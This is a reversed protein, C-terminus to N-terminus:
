GNLNPFHHIIVAGLTCSGWTRWLTSCSDPRCWRGTGARRSSVIVPLMGLITLKKRNAAYLCVGTPILDEQRVKMSRLVDTGSCCVSAGTDGVASQNAADEQHEEGPAQTGSLEHYQEKDVAVRVQLAKMRRDPWTSVYKGAKEDYRLHRLIRGRVPKLQELCERPLQCVVESDQLGDEHEFLETPVHGGRGVSIELLEEVGANTEAKYKGSKDAPPNRPKFLHCQKSLHGMKSCKQCQENFASCKEKRIRFEHGNDGHDQEGCWKCRKLKGLGKKQRQYQSLASVSRSDEQSFKGIEEAVVLKEAELLSIGPKMFLKKQTADDALGVMLQEMVMEDTFDVFKGCMEDECKVKYECLRATAKLSSLFTQVPQDHSQIMKRLKHRTVMRNRTRVVMEKVANILADETMTTYSGEGYKGVVLMAVEDSLCQGLVQKANEAKVGSVSKYEKWRHVFFAFVEEDVFSDKLELRPRVFKGTRAPTADQRGQQGGQQHAGLLHRDLMALALDPPLEPTEYDCEGTGMTCPLQVAAM